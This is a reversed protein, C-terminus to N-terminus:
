RGKAFPYRSRVALIHATTKGTNYFGVTTNLRVFYADGAKAKHRGEVGDMGGGAVMEGEGDLLLYIEEETDHHHPFNTGGPTMEMIFLSTMIHATALRDRKSTIDGMMLQYLTSPPHNGVVQKKVERLNAVDLKEPIKLQTGAPIKYGMVLVELKQGAGASLSHKIGPPLYLFDDKAVAHKAGHYIVEGKGELVFYLQEEAVYSVTACGSSAAVRAKGFRAVGRVIKSNSDGAGFLPSYACGPASLDDPAAPTQHLNRRLWTPDVARDDALALAAVFLWM